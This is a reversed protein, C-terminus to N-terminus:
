RPDFRNPGLVNDYSNKGDRAMTETRYGLVRRSGSAKVGADAFARIVVKRALRHAQNDGGWDPVAVSRLVTKGGRKMWSWGSLRQAMVPALARRTALPVAPFEVEWMSDQKEGPKAKKIFLVGDQNWRKAVAAMLRKAQGNGDYSVAWSFEDGDGWQGLQPQVKVRTVGAIGKLERTVRHMEDRVTTNPAYHAADDKPRVSTIGVITEPAGGRGAAAKSTFQGNKPDHYPNFERLPTDPVLIV